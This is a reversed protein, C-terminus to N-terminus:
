SSPESDPREIPHFVHSPRSQLGDPVKIVRECMRMRRMGTIVIECELRSITEKQPENACMIERKERRILSIMIMIM